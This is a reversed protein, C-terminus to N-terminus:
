PTEEKKKIVSVLGDVSEIVAGEGRGISEASRASCTAGKFEVSGDVRDPGVDDLVRVPRGTLEDLNLSPNQVDSM